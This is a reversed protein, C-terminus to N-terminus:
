SGSSHSRVEAPAMTESSSPRLVRRCDVHRLLQPWPACGVRIFLDRALIHLLTPTNFFTSSTSRVEATTPGLAVTASFLQSLMKSSTAARAVAISANSVTLMYGPLDIKLTPLHMSRITGLMAAEERPSVLLKM